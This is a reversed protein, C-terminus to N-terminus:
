DTVMQSSNYLVCGSYTITLPGHNYPVAALECVESVVLGAAEMSVLRKDPFRCPANPYTCAACLTCTGATLTMTQASLGADEIAEVLDLVRRKQLEGAEQMTEIDFDDELEAVTQVVLCDEYEHMQREFDEISGCAPPCAWSRGYTQCTNAACMARVEPRAALDRASCTGMAEFGRESALQEIIGM